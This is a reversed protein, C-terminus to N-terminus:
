AMQRRRLNRMRGVLLVGIIVAFILSWKVLPYATFFAAVLPEETLMGGATYALVASGVYIIWPFKEILRLILTSGWVVIPVSILLGAAVLWPSGHSAGAIALVNDLGMVTDAVVITRVAAGLSPAAEISEQDKDEVMLKYAIWILLLGGALLLGPVQLLYVVLLTALIRVAVAGFTGWLIAKKQQDKALKRSAMGIVIANDGALVLDILVISLLASLWETVGIEM